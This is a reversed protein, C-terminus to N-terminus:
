RKLAPSKIMEREFFYTRLYKKLEDIGTGDKASVFLADPYRESLRIKEEVFLRDLKNFVLVRPKAEAGIEKLVGEVTNMKIEIDSETADVVHILLDAELVEALTARFSAILSHPLRRLFGVTDSILVKHNPPLFLISTNSDLTSFLYDATLLNGRTLANVLSSKGANTYGVTCIKYFDRRQKRQVQKSLEIRKLEKKLVAMREKIRRRDMELKKEGPGRTGIGGGLRSLETGKGTLRPLRYELQAMEVQLKAEKTRAHKAFIDLILTTRDIVRVGTVMEINRIQVGSLETDFILLDVGFERALKGLEEAKGRGILLSPNLKDRIQIFSEVVEGGATRTLNALEELSQIMEWRKMRGDGVSILFVREKKEM